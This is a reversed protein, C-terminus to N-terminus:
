CEKRTSAQVCIRKDASRKQEARSVRCCRARARVCMDEFDIKTQLQCKSAQDQRCRANVNSTSSDRSWRATARLPEDGTSTTDTGTLFRASRDQISALGCRTIADNSLTPRCKYSSTVKSMAQVELCELAELKCTKESAVQGNTAAAGSVTLSM